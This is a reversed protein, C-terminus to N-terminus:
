EFYENMEEQTLKFYSKVNNLLYERRKDMYSKLLKCEEQWEDYTHKWRKQNREMEPKILNYLENYKKNINEDSWVNKLNYSLRELFRKKFENNKFLGRIIVNNYSHDGLGKEDTLWNLYNRDYNYFAYDFDYFILKLKGNDINPNNFYRTNVIDNNATYLEGILYDIFNDIDLKQKVYEYNKNDTMDHTDIYNILSNYDKLSGNTIVNDIRVINTSSDDINYHSSIFKEDVKERLFYVGWYKGNIYLVVAKYAQVDVTGYDDMIGTALEDRIMSGTSDQSGSRVVITDYKTSERNEFVKYKLKSPGYKSSFKLAFSKKPIYRTQGGFLKMGCDISFSNDKEYLEAHANVTISEDLNDNLEDFSEEPLSLSLVPLTHNEDLIYTGTVVESEIKNSEFSRARIVTTKDLEIPKEYKNSERTPISGDLTYYVDGLSKIEVKIKSSTYIGPSINFEPQYSLIIKSDENNKGMPTPNKFYYLGTDSSIGYSYENKGTVFMSDIIKDDKYLYLSEESSINFNVHDYDKITNNKDSTALLIFYEHSKLKKDPLKYKNIVTDDNTITYESLNIEHDTNNYLEIWDYYNNGQKLYTKNYPMVESIILEEKLNRYMNNFKKVGDETNLYGPSINTSLSYNKSNYIYSYGNTLNSYEINQVIKGNSSLILVGKENDIHFSEEGNAIMMSETVLCVQNPEIEINPLKWKFPVNLNNSVYYNGLNIKNDSNNIFEIYEDFKGDILVVGKNRPLFENISINDNEEYLSNLYEDRGNKNNSYGPSIEDTIIWKGDADRAIVNNKDINKTKVSDIIKGNISKLTIFEGGNKNLSFDAHMQGDDQGTLYVVLYEHSKLVKKPFMWKILGNEEDTLGYDSLEIDNDTGNYIEIWDSTNGNSDITAGTNSIMVENIVLGKVDIEKNKLKSLISNEDDQLIDIYILFILLLLLFIIFKYNKKLKEVDFIRGM